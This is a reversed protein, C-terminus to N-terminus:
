DGDATEKEKHIIDIIEDIRNNTVESDDQIFIIRPVFKMRIRKSLLKRILGASARLGAFTDEFAENKEITTFFIDASKLDPSTDVKIITVFGIRSDHIDRQLIMSVQHRIEENVKNIRSM